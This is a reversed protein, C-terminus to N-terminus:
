KLSGSIKVIYITEHIQCWIFFHSLIPARHIINKEEKSSIKKKKGSRVFESSERNGGLVREGRPNM